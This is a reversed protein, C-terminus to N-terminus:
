EPLGRVRRSWVSRRVNSAVGCALDWLYRRLAPLAPSAAPQGALFGRLLRAEDRLCLLYTEQLVDAADPAGPYGYRRLLRHYLDPAVNDYLWALASPDGANLREAIEHAKPDDDAGVTEGV